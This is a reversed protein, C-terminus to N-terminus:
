HEGVSALVEGSSLGGGPMSAQTPLAVVVRAGPTHAADVVLSGGVAEVREAAVQLGIHGDALHDILPSDGFGRGDDTVELEISNASRTVRVVISDAGAHKAANALLERALSFVLRDHYGTAETQVEVQARVRGRTSSVEALTMLAVELGVRELISPHTTKIAGRLQDLTRDLRALANELSFQSRAESLDQRVVLLTQVVDDHLAEALARRERDEAELVQAVLRGRSAALNSIRDHQEREAALRRAVYGFILVGAVVFATAGLGESRYLAVAAVGVAIPIGIAPLIGANARLSGAVSDGYLLAVLATVILVNMVVAGVATIAIAAYLLLGSQGAVLASILLAATMNPAVAGLLNIPLVRVRYRDASWVAAEEVVAIVAAPAPGLLSFACIHPILAGGWFVRGELEVLLFASSLACGALAIAIPDLLRNHPAFAFGIACLALGMLAILPALMPHPSRVADGSV